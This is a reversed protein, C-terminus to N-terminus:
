LAHRTGFQLGDAARLLLSDGGLIQPVRQLLPDPAQGDTTSPELLIEELGLDSGYSVFGPSVSGGDLNVVAVDRDTLLSEVFCAQHGGSCVISGNQVVVVGLGADSQAIAQRRVGRTEPRYLSKVNTFVTTGPVRKKPELPPLGEHRVAEAAEQDFKPVKPM